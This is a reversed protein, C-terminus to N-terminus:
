AFSTGPRRRWAGRGVERMSSGLGVMQEAYVDFGVRGWMGHGPFVWEVRLRALVDM